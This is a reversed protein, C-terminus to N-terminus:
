FFMCPNNSVIKDFPPPSILDYIMGVLDFMNGSIVLIYSTEWSNKHSRYITKPNKKFGRLNETVNSKPAQEFIFRQTNVPIVINVWPREACQIGPLITSM